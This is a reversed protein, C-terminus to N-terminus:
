RIHVGGTVHSPEAQPRERVVLRKCRHHGARARSSRQNIFDCTYRVRYLSASLTSYRGHSDLMRKDMTAAAVSGAGAGLPPPRAAGARAPPRHPLAGGGPSLGPATDQLPCLPSDSLHHGEVPADGVRLAAERADVPVLEGVNGCV